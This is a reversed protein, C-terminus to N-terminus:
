LIENLLNSLVDDAFIMFTAIAIIIDNKEPFWFLIACALRVNNAVDLVLWVREIISGDVNFTIM